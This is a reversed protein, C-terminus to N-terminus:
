RVEPEWRYPSVPRITLESLERQGALAKDEPTVRLVTRFRVWERGEADPTFFKTMRPRYVLEQSKRDFHWTGKPVDRYVPDYLAGFYNDPRRALWDMPNEREIGEVELGLGAAMRGAIRNALASHLVSVTHEMAAKEAMEQYGMLKDLAFTALVAVVAIVLVLEFLTFGARKPAPAAAGNM